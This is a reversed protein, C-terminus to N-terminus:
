YGRCRIDGSETIDARLIELGHQIRVSNIYDFCDMAHYCLCWKELEKRLIIEEEKDLPINAEINKEDNGLYWIELYLKDERANYKCVHIHEKGLIESLRNEEFAAKLRGKFHKLFLEDNMSCFIQLTDYEDPLVVTAIAFRYFGFDKAEMKDGGIGIEM